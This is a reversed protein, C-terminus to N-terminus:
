ALVKPRWQSSTTEDGDKWIGWDGFNEYSMGGHHRTQIRSTIFTKAGVEWLRRSLAWDESDQNRVWFGNNEDRIIREEFNFMAKICGNADTEWWFKKRMDFLCLAHNHILYKDGYGIEAACFTEPWKPFENTCFRRWPNWRNEPNGIGCSTVGRHDKIAMPVSIFDAGVKEMEEVLIDLWRDYVREGTFACEGCKEGKCDRCTERKDLVELDTHMMAFLDYHGRECVNLAHTLCANFNPGSNNSAIRDVKHHFSALWSARAASECLTGTGPVSLVIRYM